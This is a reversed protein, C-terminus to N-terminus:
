QCANHSDRLSPLPYGWTELAPDVPVWSWFLWPEHRRVCPRNVRTILSAQELSVGVEAHSRRRRQANMRTAIREAAALLDRDRAGSAGIVPWASQSGDDNSVVLQLECIDDFIRPRGQEGRAWVGSVIDWQVVQAFSFERGERPLRVIRTGQSIEAYTGRKQENVFSQQVGWGCLVFALGLIGPFLGCVWDKGEFPPAALYFIAFGVVSAVALGFFYAVFGRPIPAPVIAVGDENAVVRWKQPLGYWLKGSLRVPSPLRIEMVALM